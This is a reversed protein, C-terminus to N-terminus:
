FRVKSISKGPEAPDFLVDGFLAVGDPVVGGLELGDLLEVVDSELLEM